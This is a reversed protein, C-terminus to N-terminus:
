DVVVFSKTTMKGSNSRFQVHYVGKTMPPLQLLTAGEVIRANYIRRGVSDYVVVEGFPTSQNFQLTNSIPAYFYDFEESDLTDDSLVACNAHFGYLNSTSVTGTLTTTRDPCIAYIMPYYIVQFNSIITSRTAGEPNFVPYDVGNLWNGQTIGSIGALENYGNNPDYEIALVVVDQSVTGNPGHQNHLNKYHGTNHYNWCTPCHAAFFEIYVTKGQDLYDYLTHNLGGIDTLTFNPAISGDELQASGALPLLAIFFPIIRKMM